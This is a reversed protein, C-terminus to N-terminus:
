YILLYMNTQQWGVVFVSLPLELVLAIQILAEALLMTDLSVFYMLVCRRNM